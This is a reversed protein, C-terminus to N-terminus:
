EKRTNLDLIVTESIKELQKRIDDIKLDRLQADAFLEKIEDIDVDSISRIAQVREPNKKRSASSQLDSLGAEFIGCFSNFLDFEIRQMEIIDTPEQFMKRHSNLTEIITDKLPKLNEKTFTIPEKITKWLSKYYRIDDLSFAISDLRDTPWVVVIEETKSNAGLLAHYKQIDQDDISLEAISSFNVEIQIEVNDM